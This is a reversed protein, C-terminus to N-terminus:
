TAIFDDTVRLSLVINARLLAVVSLQKNVWFTSLMIIRVSNENEIVTQIAIETM